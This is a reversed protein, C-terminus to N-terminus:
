KPVMSGRRPGRPIEVVWFQEGLARMTLCLAGRLWWLKDPCANPNKKGVIPPAFDFFPTLSEPAGFPM